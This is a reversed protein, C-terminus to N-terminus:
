SSIHCCLQLVVHMPLTYMYWAMSLCSKLHCFCLQMWQAYASQLARIGHLRRKYSLGAVGHPRPLSFSPLSLMCLSASASWGVRCPTLWGLILLSFWFYRLYRRCSCLDCTERQQADFNNNKKGINHSISIQWSSNICNGSIEIYNNAVLNHNHGSLVNTDTLETRRHTHRSALPIIM